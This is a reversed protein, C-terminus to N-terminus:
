RKFRFTRSITDVAGTAPDTATLTESLRFRGPFEKMLKLLPGKITVYLGFLQGAAFTGSDSFSAKGGMGKLTGKGTVNCAVACVALPQVRKAVRLKFGSTWNIIAGSKQAVPGGGASALKAGGAASSAPLLLVATIGLAAVITVMRTRKRM